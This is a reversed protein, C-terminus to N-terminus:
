STPGEDARLPAATFISFPGSDVVQAIRLVIAAWLSQIHMTSMMYTRKCVPPRQHMRQYCTVIGSSSSPLSPCDGTIDQTRYCRFRPTSLLAQAHVAVEDYRSAITVASPQERAVEIAFSPGSLYALRKKLAPPVVRELIENVTELTDNSIGKSCSM